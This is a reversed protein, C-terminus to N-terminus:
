KMLQFSVPLLARSVVAIGDRRAPRYTSKKVADIAAEAFGFGADEVVEANMLKGRDDITLRLLVNGDKYMRRAVFPYVPMERHVFSPGMASGFQVNDVPGSGSSSSVNATGQSGNEETGSQRAPGPMIESNQSRSGIETVQKPAQVPVSIGASSSPLPRDIQPQEATHQQEVIHKRGADHKEVASSRKLMHKPQNVSCSAGQQIMGFDIEIPRSLTIVSDSLAWVVAFAAGHILFSIGLGRSHESM